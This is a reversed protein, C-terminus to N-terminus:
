LRVTIQENEIQFDLQKLPQIAPGKVPNGSEDFSSGHCPCILKGNEAENIVCGLHTCHSSFVKTENNLNIVIFEKTFSIQKNPNFPFTVIRNLSLAEETSVLKYWLGTIGALVISGSLKLFKKRDIKKKM